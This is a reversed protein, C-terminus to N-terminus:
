LGTLSTGLMVTMELVTLGLPHTLSGDHQHGLVLLKIRGDRARWGLEDRHDFTQRCLFYRSGEVRWWFIARDPGGFYGLDYHDLALCGPTQGIGMEVLRVRPFLIKPLAGQAHWQNNRSCRGQVIPRSNPSLRKAWGWIPHKKNHKLRFHKSM